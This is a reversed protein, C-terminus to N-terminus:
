SGHIMINEKIAIGKDIFFEYVTVRCDSGATLYVGGESKKVACSSNVKKAISSATKKLFKASFGDLGEIITIKHRGKSSPRIIIKRSSISDNLEDIIQNDINIEDDSM